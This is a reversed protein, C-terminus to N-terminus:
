SRLRRFDLMGALDPRELAVVRGILPNWNNNLLFDHDSEISFGRDIDSQWRILEIIFNIGIKNRGIAKAQEIVEVIADFLKPNDELFDLVEDWLPHDQAETLLNNM